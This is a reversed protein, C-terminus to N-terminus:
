GQIPAVQQSAKLESVKTNFQTILDADTTQYRVGGHGEEIPIETGSKSLLKTVQTVRLGVMLGAQQLLALEALTTSFSVDFLKSSSTRAETKPGKETNM